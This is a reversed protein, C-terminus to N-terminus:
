LDTCAQVKGLSGRLEIELSEGDALALRRGGLVSGNVEICSRL